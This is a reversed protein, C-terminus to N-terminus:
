KGDESPPTYQLAMSLLTGADPAELILINCDKTFRPDVLRSTGMPAYVTTIGRAKMARMLPALTTEDFFLSGNMNVGGIFCTDKLSLNTKLLKSCIAAYCAMGVHNGPGDPLPQPIFISVDYKSLDFRTTNRICQYAVKCYQEQIPAVPGLVEFKGTGNPFVCAELIFFHASGNFYFAANVQGPHIAINRVINKGPGLLQRLDQVTYTRPSPHDELQRCYDGIFREAFQELDRVGPEIAYDSILLNEAEETFAIMEPPIGTKDMWRPLIYSRWIHCKEYSTYGPVQIILFRDQLPKTVNSLNNCTGICFLNDTPIVEELFNEYFGTKDLISLLIDAKSRNGMSGAKDVENALLVATSSRLHYMSELLMGPRANNYIRSTGSIEDPDRGLSSMDMQILEMHLIKAIAKAISTKGTGAPGCLLIGWKPLCGTRRIQAVIELIREKVTDLGYFAEDLVEQVQATTPIQLVQPLWDINLVLEQARLAHKRDTSSHSGKCILSNKNYCRLVWAPLREKCAELFTEFQEPAHMYFLSTMEGPEIDKPLPRSLRLFIQQFFEIPIDKLPNSCHTTGIRHVSYTDGQQQGELIVTLSRDRLIYMLPLLSRLNQRDEEWLRVKSPATGVETEFFVLDDMADFFGELTGPLTEPSHSCYDVKLRFPENLQLSDSNAPSQNQMNKSGGKEKKTLATMRLRLLALLDDELINRTAELVHSVFDEATLVTVKGSTNRKQRRPPNKPRELYGCGTFADKGIYKLSKAVNLKRLDKCGFFAREEISFIVAAICLLNPCNEFTSSPLPNLAIKPAFFLRIASDQFVGEGLLLSECPLLNVEVLNPCGAFASDSIELNLAHAYVRSLGSKAFARAGITQLSEPFHSGGAIAPSNKRSACDESFEPASETCGVYKLNVCDEFAYDDIIQITKPIWVREVHVNGEFAFSDIWLVPVGNYTEPIVVDRENGTYKKVSAANEITSIVLGM